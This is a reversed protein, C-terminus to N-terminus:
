AVVGEADVPDGLAWTIYSGESTDLRVNVSDQCHARVYLENYAPSIKLEEATYLDRVHVLRSDPLQRVRPVHEDIAKELADPSRPEQPREAGRVPKEM